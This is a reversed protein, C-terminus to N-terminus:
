FRSPLLIRITRWPSLVLLDDDGSIIIAAQAALALERYCNDNAERCDQITQQPEIWLAAATLLELVEFRRDETLTRAFKPRALVEAIEGFM